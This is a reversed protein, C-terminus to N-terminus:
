AAPTVDLEARDAESALNRLQTAIKRVSNVDLVVVQRTGVTSCNRAEKELTEAL